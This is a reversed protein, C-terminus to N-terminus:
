VHETILNLKGPITDTFASIVGCASVRPPIFGIRYLPENQLRFSLLSGARKNWWPGHLSIWLELDFLYVCVWQIVSRRKNSCLVLSFCVACARLCFPSPSRILIQIVSIAADLKAHHEVVRTTISEIPAKGLGRYWECHQELLTSKATQYVKLQPVKFLYDTFRCPRTRLRRVRSTKVNFGCCHRLWKM